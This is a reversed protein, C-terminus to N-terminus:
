RYDTNKAGASYTVGGFAILDTINNKDGMGWALLVLGIHQCISTCLAIM